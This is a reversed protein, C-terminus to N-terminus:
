KTIKNNKTKIILKYKKAEDILKKKNEYINKSIMVNMITLNAYAYSSEGVFSLEPYKKNIYNMQEKSADIYDYNIKNNKTISNIRQFYHYKCIPLLSIVKAKDFVKYMIYYDESLKGVPFKIDNFLEKKFLKNWASVDLDKFSNLYIIGQKGNIREYKAPCKPISKNNDYDIYKGYIVIDSDNKIHENYALEITDNEIWDDGDVFILLEATAKEIGCNRADSLGGNKKHIVIIRNDNKQYKDCIEGSKDTSGDDVLIIELNKYTQNIISEICKEIYNEINYIPIIISIKDNM